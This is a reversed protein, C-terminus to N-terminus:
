QHAELFVYFNTFEKMKKLLLSNEGFFAFFSLTNWMHLGFYKTIRGYNHSCIDKVLSLFPAIKESRAISVRSFYEIDIKFNEKQFFNVPLFFPQHL